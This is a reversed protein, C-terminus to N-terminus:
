LELNIKLVLIARDRDEASEFWLNLDQDVKYKIGYSDLVLRRSVTAFIDTSM